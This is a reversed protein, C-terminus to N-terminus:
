QSGRFTGSLFVHPEHSTKQVEVGVELEAM